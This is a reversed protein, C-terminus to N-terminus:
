VNQLKPLGLKVVFTIHLLMLILFKVCDGVCLKVYPNALLLLVTSSCRVEITTSPGLWQVM